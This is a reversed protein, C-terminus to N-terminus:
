QIFITMSKSRTYNFAGELLLLGRIVIRLDEIYKIKSTEQMAGYKIKGFYYYLRIKPHRLTTEPTGPVGDEYYNVFGINKLNEPTIKTKRM